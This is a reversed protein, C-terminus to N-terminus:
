PCGACSSGRLAHSASQMEVTRVGALEFRRGWRADKRSGAVVAQKRGRGISDDVSCSSLADGSGLIWVGAYPHLSSPIQWLEQLEMLEMLQEWPARARSGVEAVVVIM